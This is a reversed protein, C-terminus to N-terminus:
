SVGRSIFTLLSKGRSGSYGENCPSQSTNTYHFSTPNSPHLVYCVVSHILFTHSNTILFASPTFRSLLKLSSMIYHIMFVHQKPIHVRNTSILVSHLPTSNPIFYRLKASYVLCPTKKKIRKGSTLTDLVRIKNNRRRDKVLMKRELATYLLCM